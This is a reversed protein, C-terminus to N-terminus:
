RNQMHRSDHKTSPFAQEICSIIFETVDIKESLMINRKIKWETKSNIDNLINIAQMLAESQCMGRGTYNYVLHYKDQLEDTYSRRSSSVFISPTGLIAAESAMTASEGIYLDTFYLLSHVKEPSLTIRYQELDEPLKKESSIYLRGQKSLMEAMEFVDNFGTDGIDHSADWSVLRLVICKENPNLGLDSYVEPDPKFYNPHLYALEHYGNYKTHKKGHYKLYCSPTFIKDTFPYTLSATLNAHETDVFAFSKVGLLKGVHAAYPSGVSVILDPKKERVIKLLNVDLILVNFAKRLIGKRNEGILHYEIRLKNLLDLTIDKKRATVIIEHKNSKLISITNKFLHVHAPHGIDFLVKM